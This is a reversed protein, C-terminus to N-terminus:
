TNEKSRLVAIIERYLMLTDTKIASASQKSRPVFQAKLDPLYLKTRLRSIYSYHQFLLNSFYTNKIKSYFYSFISHFLVV